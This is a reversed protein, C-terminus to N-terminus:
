SGMTMWYSCGEREVPGLAEFIPDLVAVLGPTRTVYLNPLVTNLRNGMLLATALLYQESYADRAAAAPYDWPLSIDHLHIFVGPKLSPLIDLFLVTVDSNPLCRHSNDVFLMDGAALEAFMSLPLEELPTRVVQDCLGDIESRPNPDVSILRTALHNNEIATRAFRTSHGSGIELYRRPQQLALLCYLSIADLASFYGNVWAVNRIAILQEQFQLFSGLLQEYRERGESILGYLKSHAGGGYRPQMKVPYNLAVVQDGRLAQAMAKLRPYRRLARKLSM